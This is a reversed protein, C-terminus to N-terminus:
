HDGLAIHPTHAHFLYAAEEGYMEQLVQSRAIEQPRGHAVMSRNMCAITDVYSAVVGIDHSVITITKGENRLDKLLGYLTVTTEADVGTTPEDLILIDPEKALARALFVRQRQGGSLRAIARDQVDMLGMREMAEEAAQHDKRGPRRGLGLRGYRGMLIVEYVSVPFNVDISYVQPVYGIPVSRALKMSEVPKGFIRVEGTDAAILGLIARVLTTKGAGNPGIIAAFEGRGITLTIDELIVQEGRLLTLNRVEIAPADKMDDTAKM